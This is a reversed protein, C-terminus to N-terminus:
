ESQDFRNRAGSRIECVRSLRKTGLVILFANVQGCIGIKKGMKKATAIVSKIMLKVAESREDFLESVISSDRDLGLVLQTLDNSGISSGDFIELFEKALLVNSPIECMCYIEKLGDKGRALGNLEMEAIVKRGEDPTRCFPIMPIVNTLGMEKIV